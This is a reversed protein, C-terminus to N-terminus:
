GHGGLGPGHCDDPVRKQGPYQPNMHGMSGEADRRGRRSRQDYVRMVGSVRCHGNGHVFLQLKGQGPGQVGPDMHPQNDLGLDNDHVERGYRGVIWGGSNGHARQDIRQGINTARARRPLSSTGRSVQRYRKLGSAGSDVGM